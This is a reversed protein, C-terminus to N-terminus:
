ITAEMQNERIGLYGWCLGFIVRFGEFRFGWVRKEMLGTDNPRLTFAAEGQSCNLLKCKPKPPPPLPHLIIAYFICYYLIIYYPILALSKPSLSFFMKSFSASAQTRYANCLRNLCQFQAVMVLFGQCRSYMGTTDIFGGPPYNSGQM